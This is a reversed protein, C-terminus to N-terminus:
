QPSGSVPGNADTPEHPANVLLQWWLFTGPDIGNRGVPSATSVFPSFGLSPRSNSFFFRSFPQWIIIAIMFIIIIIIILHAAIETGTQCEAIGDSPHGGAEQRGV